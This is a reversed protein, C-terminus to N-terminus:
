DDPEWTVVNSHTNGTTDTKLNIMLQWPGYDPLDSVTVSIPVNAQCRSQGTNADYGGIQTWTRRPNRSWNGQKWKGDLKVWKGNRSETFEWTGFPDDILPQAGHLPASRAFLQYENSRSDGGFQIVAGRYHEGIGLPWQAKDLIRLNRPANSM